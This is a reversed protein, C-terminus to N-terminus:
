KWVVQSNSSANSKSVKDSRTFIFKVTPYDRVMLKMRTSIDTAYMNGFIGGGGNLVSFVSAINLGANAVHGVVGKRANWYDSLIKLHSYFSIAGFQTHPIILNELAAKDCLYHQEPPEAPCNFETHAMEHAITSFLIAKRDDYYFEYIYRIYYEPLSIHVGHIFPIGPIAGIVNLRDKDISYNYEYKLPVKKVFENWISQIDTEYDQPLTYYKSSFNVTACGSVFILLALIIKRM